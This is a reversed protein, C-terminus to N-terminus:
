ILTEKPTRIKLRGRENEPVWFPGSNPSSVMNHTNGLSPYYGKEVGGGGGGGGGFLFFFFRIGKFPGVLFPTGGGKRPFGGM